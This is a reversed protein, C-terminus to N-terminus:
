GTFKMGAEAEALCWEQLLEKDKNAILTEDANKSVYDIIKKIRSHCLHCALNEFLFFGIQGKTVSNVTRTKNEVEARIDIFM